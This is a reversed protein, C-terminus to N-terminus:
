TSRLRAYAHISLRPVSGAPPPRHADDHHSRAAGAAVEPRLERPRPLVHREHRSARVQFGDAGVTEAHLRRDVALPHNLRGDDLPQIAQRGGLQDEEADLGEIGIARAFGDLGDHPGAGAHQRDQVAHVVYLLELADKTRLM